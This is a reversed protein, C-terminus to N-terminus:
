LSSDLLTLKQALVLVMKMKKFDLQLYTGSIINSTSSLVKPPRTKIEM